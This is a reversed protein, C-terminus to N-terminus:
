NMGGIDLLSSLLELLSLINEEEQPGDLAM